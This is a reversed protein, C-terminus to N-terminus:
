GEEVWWAMNTNSAAGWGGPTVAIVGVDVEAPFMAVAKECAEQSPVGESLMEYIRLCTFRKIIEEGVGTAVVAGHKGAYFGAGPIPTDGVRGPLKLSTGGTSGAAAMNGNTDLCVVGVTDGTEGNKERGKEVGIGKEPTDSKENKKAPLPSAMYAPLEKRDLFEEWGLPRAWPPIERKAVQNRREALKMLAKKTLPSAFELGWIEAMKEAGTGALIVHPSDLVKRALLVPNKVLRVDAVAGIRGDDTMIGADMSMEGSLDLYSGKGANFIPDDEMEVVGAVAADLASGGKELIERSRQVAKKVGELHIEPKSGAGGHGVAIFM